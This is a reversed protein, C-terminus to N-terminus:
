KKSDARANLKKTFDEQLYKVWSEPVVKKTRVGTSDIKYSDSYLKVMKDDFNVTFNAEYRHRTLTLLVHDSKDEKIIYGRATAAALVVHHVDDTRLGEPVSVTFIWDGAATAGRLPNVLGLVVLAALTLFRPCNM